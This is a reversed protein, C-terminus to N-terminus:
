VVELMKLKASEILQQMQPSTEHYPLLVSVQNATLRGKEMADTLVTERGNKDHGLSATWRVPLRQDRAESVRKTYAEKFAMRAAVTEGENILPYAVGWAASMEETWVTTTYEDHPLMAWAEEVGPRGDDIRSIVAEACFQGPKLEKRCRSLARMVAREDYGELDYALMRAAEESFTRGCLEATAALAKILEVSAM